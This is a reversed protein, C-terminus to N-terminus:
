AATAAFVEIRRASTMTALALAFVASFIVIISLKLADSQLTYLVVTSLLPLLAAVVTVLVDAVMALRSESYLYIGSGLEHSEPKKFREGYWRHYLPFVINTFWRSIPDPTLRPKIAVLDDEVDWAKRNAGIIPFNGMEPREFWDKLFVLDHKNPPDLKALSVETLLAKNYSRLTKMLKKIKRWQRRGDRDRGHALAWWDLDYMAREKDDKRDELVVKSLENQLSIVKAQLYLLNQRNSQTFRRYIALEEHVSMLKATKAYGRDGSQVPEPRGLEVDLTSNTKEERMGIVEAMKYGSNGDGTSGTGEIEIAVM